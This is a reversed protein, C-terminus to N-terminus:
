AALAIPEPQTEAVVAYPVLKPRGRRPAQAVPPDPRNLVPCGADLDAVILQALLRLADRPADANM